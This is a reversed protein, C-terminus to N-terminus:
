NWKMFLLVVCIYLDNLKDAASGAEGGETRGDMEWNKLPNIEGLRRM